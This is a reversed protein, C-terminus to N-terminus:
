ATVMVLHNDRIIRKMTKSNLGGAVAISNAGPKTYIKHSGNQRSFTYGNSSMLQRVDRQNWNTKM